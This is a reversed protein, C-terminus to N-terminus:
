LIYICLSYYSYLHNFLNKLTDLELMGPHAPNQAMIWSVLSVVVESKTSVGTWPERKNNKLVTYFMIISLYVPRRLNLSINFKVLLNQFDVANHNTFIFYPNNQSDIPIKWKVHLFEQPVPAKLCLSCVTKLPWCWM